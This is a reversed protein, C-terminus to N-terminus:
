KALKSGVEAVPQDEKKKDAKEYGKVRAILISAALSWSEDLPRPHIYNQVLERATNPGIEVAKGEVIAKGGGILALRITEFIEKIGADAEHAFGAPMGEIEGRGAMVNSYVELIGKGTKDQLEIIQPLKLDFTYKGDAFDLEIATDLM